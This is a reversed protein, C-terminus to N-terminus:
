PRSIFGGARKGKGKIGAREDIETVRVIRALEGVFLIKRQKRRAAAKATRENRLAQDILESRRRAENTEESVEETPSAQASWFSLMPIALSRSPTPSPTTRRSTM